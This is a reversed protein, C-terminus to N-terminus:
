SLEEQSVAKRELDAGFNKVLGEGEEVTEM